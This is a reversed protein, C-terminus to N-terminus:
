EAILCPIYHSMGPKHYGILCTWKQNMIGKEEAYAKMHDGIDDKSVDINKFVPPMEAFKSKLDDPVHLDVELARTVDKNCYWVLFHNMTKMDNEQWVNLCLQYDEASINENKLTSFFAEHAPFETVQLKDLSTMWEYPFFGKQRPCPKRYTRRYPHVALATYVLSQDRPRWTSGGHLSCSPEKRPPDKSDVPDQPVKPQTWSSTVTEEQHSEKTLDTTDPGNREPQDACAPSFPRKGPLFPQLDPLHLAPTTWPYGWAEKQPRTPQVRQRMDWLILDTFFRCSDKSAQDPQEERSIRQRMEWLHVHDHDTLLDLIGIIIRESHVYNSRPRLLLWGRRTPENRAIQNTWNGIIHNTPSIVCKLGSKPQTKSCILRPLPVERRAHASLRLM